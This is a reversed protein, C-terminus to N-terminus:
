ALRGSKEIENVVAATVAEVPRTDTDVAIHAAERYLPERQALLRDIESVADGGDLAPRQHASRVDDALRQAIVQPAARLWVVLGRHVMLRRNERDCPAGGGTAVVQRGAAAVERIVRRELDRFAPWGQRAVIEAIPRGARATVLDDTDVFSWALRRALLRGVSTKGTCRYGIFYINM